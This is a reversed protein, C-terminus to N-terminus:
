LLLRIQSIKELLVYADTFHLADAATIISRELRKAETGGMWQGRQSRKERELYLVTVYHQFLHVFLTQEEKVVEAPVGASALSLRVCKAITPSLQAALWNYLEQRNKRDPADMIRAAPFNAGSNFVAEDEFPM